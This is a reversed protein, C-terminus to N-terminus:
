EMERVWVLCDAASKSRRYRREFRRVRLRAAKCDEDFWPSLLKHGIKIVRLPLIEDLIATLTKEYINFLIEIPYNILM